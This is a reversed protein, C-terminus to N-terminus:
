FHLSEFLEATFFAIYYQLLAQESNQEDQEVLGILFDEFEKLKEHDELNRRLHQWIYKIKPESKM